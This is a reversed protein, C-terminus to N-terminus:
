RQIPTLTAAAVEVELTVTGSPDGVPLAPAQGRSGSITVTWPGAASRDGAQALNARAETETGGAVVGNETPLAFGTPVEVVIPTGCTGSGDGVLGGPGALAVEVNFPVPSVATVDACEVTVVVSTVDTANVDFTADGSRMTGLPESGIEVLQSSWAVNFAGLASGAGTLGGETNVIAYTAGGFLVAGVVFLVIDPGAM